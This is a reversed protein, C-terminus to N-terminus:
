AKPGVRRDHGYSELLARNYEAMVDQRRIIGILSPNTQSELVPLEREGSSEMLQMTSEMTDDAFITTPSRECLEGVTASSHQDLESQSIPFMHFNMVGVMKGTQDTVILNGGEQSILLDKADEQTASEQITFFDRSMHEVVKTSKLLHSARGGSLHIGSNELQMHFFSSTYFMNTFMSAIASAIMVAITVSYDSTIEFVILMTSIPAGLVASAVAGMGVVAYLGPDSAMGPMIQAVILGFIGGTMAGIFLSPSFVGGGFRSGLTITVAIVKAILLTALFSFDYSGKLANSTAEYGVSLIEPIQVALVSLLAGGIVPHLWYPIKTIRNHIKDALNLSAMFAIASLASIIGLIFFAPFEWNSVIHYGPLSFAPFDGLHLRSIMTGIIASIVVPTFAHLAYHGIIVELAFFVGALPANFSAAVAAAVGCGLITRSLAASLGLKKAISSALTAGLHVVPGERGASAGTGLSMITTIASAIGTKFNIRGERLAAAEIVHPVSHTRNDPIFRLLQGVIIGGLILAGTIHWWPLSQATTALISESTGYFLIVVSDIALYFGIAGYGCVIGTLVALLMLTWHENHGSKYLLSKFKSRLTLGSGTSAQTKHNDGSNM